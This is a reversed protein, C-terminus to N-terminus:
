RLNLPIVTGMLKQLEIQSELASFSLEQERKKTELFTGQADLFELYSSRGREFASRFGQFSQKAAPLISQRLTRIEVIKNKLKKQLNEIAVGLSRELDLKLKKEAALEHQASSIEGRKRDFVPLPLSLAAVFAHDSTEEIRRYGGALTIDPVAQSKQLRLNKEAANIKANSLGMFPSTTVDFPKLEEIDDVPLSFTGLPGIDEHNGGWFNALETKASVLDQKATVVALKAMEVEMRAKIHESQLAAGKEVRKRVAKESSQLIKLEEVSLAELAEFLQVNSFTIKLEAIIENREIFAKADFLEEQGQAEELRASRKGGLEILQSIALFTEAENYGDLSGGFNEGELEMEPNPFYGAQKKLASLSRKQDQLAAVRLNNNLTLILAEEFSTVRNSLIAPQATAFRLNLAVLCFVFFLVIFLSRYKM